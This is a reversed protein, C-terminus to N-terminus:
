PKPKMAQVGRDRQNLLHQNQRQWLDRYIVCRSMLEDHTGVDTFQGEDMVLIKNCNSLISLRHSIIIMTRNHAIKTLNAQVIAESEADLASTAEDMIMISPNSLLSRAIALRQKQGGSLNSANEQLMTDYGQPLKKVFEDAGAMISAKVIEEFTAQPKTLAINDRVTGRFYYNEQLVIGINKRLHPLDIERIDLGDIQM